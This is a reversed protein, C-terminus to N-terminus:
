NRSLALLAPRLNGPGFIEIPRIGANTCAALLASRSAQEVGGGIVLAGISAASIWAMAESDDTTGVAAHGLEEASAIAGALIGQHRGIIGIRMYM